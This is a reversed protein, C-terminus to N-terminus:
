GSCTLSTGTSLEQIQGPGYRESSIFRCLDTLSRDPSFGLLQQAVTVNRNQGGPERWFSEDVYNSLLSANVSLDPRRYDYVISMGPRKAENLATALLGKAEQSNDSQRVLDEIPGRVIQIAAFVLVPAIVAVQIARSPEIRRVCLGVLVAVVGAAVPVLMTFTVYESKKPYYNVGFSRDFNGVITWMVVPVVLSGVFISFIAFAARRRKMFSLRVVAFGSICLVTLLWTLPLPILQGGADYVSGTSVRDQFSVLATLAAALSGLAGVLTLVGFWTGTAAVEVLHKWSFFLPLCMLVVLPLLIQYSSAVVVIVSICVLSRYILSTPCTGLVDDLVMLGLFMVALLSSMFSLSHLLLLHETLFPTVFATQALFLAFIETTSGGHFLRVVRIALLGAALILLAYIVWLFGYFGFVTSEPFSESGISGISAFSGAVLHTGRPYGEWGTLIKPLFDLSPLVRTTAMAGPNSTADWQLLIWQMRQEPGGLAAWSVIGIFVAPIVWVSGPDLQEPRLGSRGRAERRLVGITLASAVVLLIAGTVDPPDLSAMGLLLGGTAVVATVFVVGTVVRTPLGRPDRLMWAIFGVTTVVLTLYRM